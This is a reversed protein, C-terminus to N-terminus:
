LEFINAARRRPGDPHASKRGFRALADALLQGAQKDTVVSADTVQAVVHVKFLARKDPPLLTAAQDILHHHGATLRM